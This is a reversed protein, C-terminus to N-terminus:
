SHQTLSFMGAIQEFNNANLSKVNRGAYLCRGAQSTAVFHHELKGITPLFYLNRFAKVDSAFSSADSTNASGENAGVDDHAPTAEPALMDLASRFCWRPNNPDRDSVYDHSEGDEPLSFDDEAAAPSPGDMSLPPLGGGFFDGLSRPGSSASRSSSLVRDAEVDDAAGALRGGLM